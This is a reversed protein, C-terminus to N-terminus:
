NGVTTSLTAPIPVSSRSAAATAGPLTSVLERNQEILSGLENTKRSYQRRLDYLRDLDANRAVEERRMTEVLGDIVDQHAGEPPNPDGSLEAIRQELIAQSKALQEGAIRLQGQQFDLKQEEQAYQVFLDDFQTRGASPISERIRFMAGSANAPWNTIEMGFETRTLRGASQDAEITVLEFEGLFVSGADGNEQFIYVIPNTGNENPGPLGTASGAEIRLRGDDRDLLEGRAEWTSGWTDLLRNLKLQRDQVNHRAQLLQTHQTQYNEVAKEYRENWRDRHAILVLAFYADLGALVIVLGLFVKGLTHM